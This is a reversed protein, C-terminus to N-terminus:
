GGKDRQGFEMLANDLNWPGGVGLDIASNSVDYKPFIWSHDMYMSIKSYNEPLMM